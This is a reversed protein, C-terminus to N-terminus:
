YNQFLCSGVPIYNLLWLKIFEFFDKEVRVIENFM